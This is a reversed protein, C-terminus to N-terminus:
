GGPIRRIIHDRVWREAAFAPTHEAEVDVRIDAGIKRVKSWPIRTERASLLRAKGARTRHELWRALVPHIRRALTAGGLVLAAVRPPAGDRLEIRIGDVKGLHTGDRDIVQQDLVHRGLQM